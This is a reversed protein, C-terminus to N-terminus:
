STLQPGVRAGAPARGVCGDWTAPRTDASRALHLLRLARGHRGDSATNEADPNGAGRPRGQRFHGSDRLAMDDPRSSRYRISSRDVGIASCAWRQSVGFAELSAGRGGTECRADGNKSAIEKLMANGLTAEALVKKLKANETELTRSRRAETVDLGGHKAKWKYFTASSIGHKRCANATAAGAQNRLIGIIQEKNFRSAKM